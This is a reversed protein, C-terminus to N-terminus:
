SPIATVLAGHRPSIICGLPRPPIAGTFPRMKAPTTFLKAIQIRGAGAGRLHRAQPVTELDNGSIGQYQVFLVASKSWEGYLGFKLDGVITPHVNDRLYAALKDADLTHTAEIAEGIVQMRAYAYPPAYYGLPVVGAGAARAQYKALFAEIGHFMLKPDPVWFDHHVVGNLLTGLQMRLPTSQMGVMSGGFMKTKLQLEHAARVLGAGDAPYSAVYVIDPNSAQVSRIIPSFDVTNPPYTRDFVIKFGHSRLNERAGEAANQAFEADASIVAVTEPKPTQAAAIDFFGKSLSIKPQPGFPVMSFYRPYHFQENLALCFYSVVLLNRAIATPMFPATMNTSYGPVAIDVKDVDLLKSYIGPVLAPNSQDDYFVLEVPRGLLGGRANVDRGLDPQGAPCTKRHRRSKGNAAHQLRSQNIPANSPAM